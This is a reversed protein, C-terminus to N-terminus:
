VHVRLVDFVDGGGRVHGQKGLQDEEPAQIPGPERVAASHRRGDGTATHLTLSM